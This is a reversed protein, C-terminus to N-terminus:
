SLDITRDNNLCRYTLETIYTIATFLDHSRKVFRMAKNGALRLCTTFVVRSITEDFRLLSLGFRSIVMILAQGM